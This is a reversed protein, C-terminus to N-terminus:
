HEKHEAVLFTEENSGNEMNFYWKHKQKHQQQQKVHFWVFWLNLRSMRSEGLVRSVFVFSCPLFFHLFRKLSFKKANPASLLLVFFLETHQLLVPDLHHALRASGTFSAKNAQMDSGLNRNLEESAKDCFYFHLVSNQLWIRYAQITGSSFCLWRSIKGQSALPTVCLM